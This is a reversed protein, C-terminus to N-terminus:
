PTAPPHRRGHDSNSLTGHADVPHGRRPNSLFAARMCTSTFNSLARQHDTRCLDRGTLQEPLKAIEQRACPSPASDREGCSTAICGARAVAPLAPRQQAVLGMEVSNAPFAAVVAPQRTASPAPRALRDQPLAAADPSPELDVAPDVHNTDHAVAPRLRTDGRAPGLTERHCPRPRTHAKQPTM